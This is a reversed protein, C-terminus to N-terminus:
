TDVDKWSGAAKRIAEAATRPDYCAAEAPQEDEPSLRYRRGMKELIVPARSAEDLLHALESGEPVNIAKTENTV